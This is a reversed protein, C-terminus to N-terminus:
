LVASNLFAPISGGFASQVQSSKLAVALFSVPGLWNPKVQALLSIKGPMMGQTALALPLRVLSSTHWAVASVAGTLLATLKRLPRIVSPMAGAGIGILSTNVRNWFPCIAMNPAPRQGIAVNRGFNLSKSM